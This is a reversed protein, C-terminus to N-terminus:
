KRYINSQKKIWQPKVVLIVFFVAAVLVTLVGIVKALQHLRSGAAQTESLCYQTSKVAAPLTNGKEAERLSLQLESALFETGMLYRSIMGRSNVVILAAKHLYEKGAKMFHFGAVRTAQAINASDATYFKWWESAKDAKEMQQMYNAKKKMALWTNDNPNFSVTMVQYDKGPELDSKDMLVSIENMLPTCLGPCDFYVFSLITPLTIAAKMDVTDGTEDVLQIGEPIYRGTHQQISVEEPNVQAYALSVTLLLLISNILNKSM